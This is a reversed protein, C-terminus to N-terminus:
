KREAPKGANLSESRCSDGDCLRIDVTQESPRYEKVPVPPTGASHFGSQAPQNMHTVQANSTDMRVRNIVVQKLFSGTSEQNQENGSPIDGSPKDGGDTVPPSVPKVEHINEQGTVTEAEIKSDADHSLMGSIVLDTGNLSDGKLQSGSVSVQGETRIGAGDRSTGLVVADNIRAGDTLHVANGTTSVGTIMGGEVTGSVSVGTGGGTTAEGNLGSHDDATVSGSVVAGTGTQSSGNLVTNNLMANGTVNLGTGSDSYGKIDAKEAHVGEQVVVASGTDSTGIIHGGSVHGSVQVATGGNAAAGNLTINDLQNNGQMKIATGGGSASANIVFDKGTSIYDDASVKVDDVVLATGNGTSGANVGSVADAVTLHGGLTVGTSGETTAEGTLMVGSISVDGSTGVGSGSNSTGTLVAPTTVPTQTGAQVVSVVAGDNLHLGVGSDSTAHLQQVTTDDLVVKGTVAVGDGSSSAGSLEANIVTAKDALKVGAGSDSSGTVAAESVSGGEAVIVASGSTAHGEVKGGTISGSVSVGDGGDQTASGSVVSKDDAILSGAIVAGQGTQTAGSTMAEELVANSINLGTGSTAHGTIIGGTIRGDSITIANGHVADANIQSGTLTASTLSVGTGQEGSASGSILLAGKTASTASTGEKVEVATGNVTQGKIEGGGSSTLIGAVSVASGKGSNEGSVVSNSIDSTGGIDLAPSDSTTTATVSLEGASSGTLKGNNIVAAHGSDSTATVGTKGQAHIEGGSVNLATGSGISNATVVVDKTNLVGGVHLADGEGSTTNLTLNALLSGPKGEETPKVMVATGNGTAEATVTVPHAGEAGRLNGGNLSLATGNETSVSIDRDTTLDAAIDMVAGRDASAVLDIGSLGSGVEGEQHPTIAVATGNGTASVAVKVPAKDATTSQLHGGVLQLGTGKDGTSVATLSKDTSLSGSVVVASNNGSATGSLEVNSLSSSGTNSIASGNESTASIVLTKGADAYGKADIIGDSIKLATGNGTSGANVGSIADAVTLHGGLTVGTSGETTAEGTLMVGSISVNGSTAVGSGSNSTGTLVAPTTVPTQTGAQVVSVVAGDNLHLGAGSDSTAHLQQVTTDDLVVKGTVAVGDGSSSTGSLESNIVTAKDALQLGTGGASTGSVKGGELSAGLSIGTGKDTSNGTVTTSGDIKLNGAINVGTGTETNGSLNGGGLSTQGSILVGDGSIATGRISSGGASSLNGAINIGASGNGTTTGTISADDNVALNGSINIGVGNDSEGTVSTGVLTFKSGGTLMVGNGSGSTGGLTGNTLTINSGKVNVGTSTESKGTIVNGELDAKGSNSIVMVGTGSTSTGNILANIVSVNLKKDLVVGTGSNSEGNITLKGSMGSNDFLRANVGDSLWSKGTVSIDGGGTFIFGNTSTQQSGTSDPTVASFGSLRNKKDKTTDAQIFINSNDDAHFELSISNYYNDMVFAGSPPASSAGTPKNKATGDVTANIILDGGSNSIKNGTCLMCYGNLIAAYPSTANIIGGGVFSVTANNIALGVPPGYTTRDLSNVANIMTGKLANFTVRKTFVIGAQQASEDYISRASGNMYVSDSLSKIDSDSLFIGTAGKSVGDIHVSGLASLEINKIFVSVGSSTASSININGTSSTTKLSNSNGGASELKIHGNTANINVGKDGSLVVRGGGLSTDTAAFAINDQPANLTLTDGATFASTIGWGTNVTIGGNITLNGTATLSQAYGSYGNLADITINGGKIYGNNKHVFSVAGAGAGGPDSSNNVGATFDGGNLDAKFFKGLTISGGNGALMALNLKGDTSNIFEPTRPAAGDATVISGDALFTLTADGGKTKHIGASVTINGTHGATDAGSTKVTVSNGNNLSNSITTNLIKAGGTVPTFIDTGDSAASIVGTDSGSGVITVDTPDLLWEGGHGAHASADVDGSAQLNRHSSTEVRGGHGSQSGGQALITGRFNTYDDSWLVATGGNGNETASVDVTASRDMVVGSANKIHSDKGQWGGGTFVEGGGTKGTASARSGAALHINQGELIIKGGRGTHSDALLQGSQSVVGSAGGNLVIEGGRSELGKAEISGSNNVVTNLLMDQGKATLFVQGSAASILGQNEVLANVVSGDVSVSTLGGNDLQLTVTKGAALVTKGSPTTISGRNSVREGALMIYGGKSTTLSGQNIVQAGPNGEGSLTYKGKMFDATNINKTSAVLGAVNVRADKGFLVGNPNLIFVQGNAKLTGMIQSGSTGTVRNLAVSSSDPQVFQVTSNKGIDFSHWNTAMNQTQQHITMQNGSTSISGQGGVIQGGAPLDPNALVMAPLLGAVLGTLLVLPTLTGLLKRFPSLASLDAIHGTSKEKGMGVTIESVVVLENRRKDFKLKYIKNM